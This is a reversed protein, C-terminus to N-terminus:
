LKLFPEKIIRSWAICIVISPKERVEAEMQRQQDLLLEEARERELREREERDREM